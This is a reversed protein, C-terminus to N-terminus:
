FRYSVTTMVMHDVFNYFTEDSSRGSYQYGISTTFRDFPKWEVGSNVEHYRDTRKPMDMGPVDKFRRWSLKGFLSAKINPTVLYVLGAGVTDNESYLRNLYTEEALQREANLILGTKPTLEYMVEAKGILGSFDRGPYQKHRRDLYGIYGNVSTKASFVKNFGLRVSDSINNNNIYEYNIYQDEKYYQYQRQYSAYIKADISLKYSATASWRDLYYENPRYQELSYDRQERKYGAELGIGSPIDYVISVGAHYDTMENIQVSKYDTRPQPTRSFLGDTRIKLGDIVILNVNAKADDRGTNQSTYHMYQMFDRKYSLNATHGSLEYRIDSGVTYVNIFDSMQDSGLQSRLQAKDKVRFVNSDYMGTISAFPKFIDGLIEACAFGPSILFLALCIAPLSL